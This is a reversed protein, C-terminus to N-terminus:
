SGNESLRLGCQGCYLANTPLKKGCSPCRGDDTVVSAAVGPTAPPAGSEVVNEDAAAVLPKSRRKALAVAGVLEFTIAAAIGLLLVWLLLNYAWTVDQFYLLPYVLEDFGYYGIIIAGMIGGLRAVHGLRRFRGSAGVLAQKLSGGLRIVTIMLLAHFAVDVLLIWTLGDPYLDSRFPELAFGSSQVWELSPVVRWIVVLVAIWIAFAITTRGLGVVKESDLM